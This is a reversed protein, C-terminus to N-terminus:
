LTWLCLFGLSGQLSSSTLLISFVLVFCSETKLFLLCTAHAVMHIVESSVCLSCAKVPYIGCVAVIESTNISLRKMSVSLVVTSAQSLLISFSSNHSLLVSKLCTANPLHNQILILLLIYIGLMRVYALYSQHLGRLRPPM